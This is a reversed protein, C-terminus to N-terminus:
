FAGASKARRPWTADAKEDVIQNFQRLNFRIFRFKRFLYAGIEGSIRTRSDTSVYTSGGHKM